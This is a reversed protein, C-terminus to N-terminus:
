RRRPFASIGRFLPSRLSEVGARLSGRQLRLEVRRACRLDRDCRLSSVGVHNRITGIPTIDDRDGVFTYALSLIMKDRPLLLEKHEYQALGYASRKPVRLPEATGVHTEDLVTFGGSLTFGYFPGFSPVLEVGQTDVRGANGAMSGFPNAKSVPVPVTVILDHVRRSFYTATFSFMEGFTNTFGGDYESSIEPTLKPNGFFPFFLEDFAPARFGESYSGRFTTDIEKIPTAVSWSPSVEKGFQSNGDVRVGRPGSSAGTSHAAKRNSTDRTNRGARLLSRSARRLHPSSRFMTPACGDIRSISAPWRAGVKAGSYVAEALAARRKRFETM